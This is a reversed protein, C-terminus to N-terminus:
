LLCKLNWLLPTVYKPASWPKDGVSDWLKTRRPEEEYRKYIERGLDTKQARPAEPIKWQIGCSLFLSGVVGWHTTERKDKQGKRWEIRDGRVVTPSNNDVM